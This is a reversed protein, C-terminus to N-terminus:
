ILIFGFLIQHYTINYKILGNEEYSEIQTSALFANALIQTPDGSIFPMKLKSWTSGSDFSRFVKGQNTLAYITKFKNATGNVNISRMVNDQIDIIEGNDPNWTSDFNIKSLSTGSFSVKLSVRRQMLSQALFRPM